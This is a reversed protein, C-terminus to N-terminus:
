KKRNLWDVIMKCVVAKDVEKFYKEVGKRMIVTGTIKENLIGIKAILKGSHYDYAHITSIPAFALVRNHFKGQQKWQTDIAVIRTIKSIDDSFYEPPLSSMMALDIFYDTDRIGDKMKRVILYKGEKELSKSQTNSFVPLKEPPYAFEITPPTGALGYTSTDDRSFAPLLYDTYRPEISKMREKLVPYFIRRFVGAAKLKDPVTKQTNFYRIYEYALYQPIESGDGICYEFFGNKVLPEAHELVRVNLAFIKDGIDRKQEENLEAFALRQMAADAEKTYGNKIISEFQSDLAQLLHIQQEPDSTALKDPLVRATGAAATVPTTKQPAAAFSVSACFFFVCFSIRVHKM